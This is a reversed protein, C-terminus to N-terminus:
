ASSWYFGLVPSASSVFACPVRELSDQFGLCSFSGPPNRCPLSNALPLPLSLSLFFTMSVWARISCLHKLSRETLIYLNNYLSNRKVIIFILFGFTCCSNGLSFPILLPWLTLLCNMDWSLPNLSLLKTMILINVSTSEHMDWGIMETRPAARWEVQKQQWFSILFLSNILFLM